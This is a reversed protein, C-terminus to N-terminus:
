SKDWASKKMQGSTTNNIAKQIGANGSDPRVDMQPRM